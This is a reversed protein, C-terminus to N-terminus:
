GRILTPLDKLKPVRGALLVGARFVRAAMWMSGVVTLTLLALSLAIQWAPVEIIVLRATMSIPATLPFISLGVALPSDPTSAFVPLLYIPLLAPLVFIVAYQPGERMSNSIASVTSYLAAFLLYSLIFYVLLLPLLHLPLQLNALSAIISVAQGVNEAQQGGAVNVIVIMMGVWVTVQFLGLLGLALIKGTLLQMPRLTAVLIEVLRTEKEEILTQMLYGNTLFVTTILTVAFAYVIVFSADEDVTGDATATLTLTEELYRAPVLLRNALSPEIGQAFYRRALTDLTNDVVLSIEFEQLVTVVTGSELYDPEVRYYMEVTGDDLAARAAAESEYRTWTPPLEAAEFLGSEDVLGRMVTRMPDFDEALQQVAATDNINTQLSDAAARTLLQFGVFLLLPVGFTTFLFGPRRFNRTLEYMFVRLTPNHMM